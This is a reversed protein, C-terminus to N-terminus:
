SWSCGRRYLARVCQLSLHRVLFQNSAELLRNGGSGSVYRQAQMEGFVQDRSSTRSFGEGM